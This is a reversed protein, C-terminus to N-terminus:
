PHCVPVEITTAQTPTQVRVRIVSRRQLATSSAGDQRCTVNLVASNGHQEAITVTLGEPVSEITPTIREGDRSTLRVTATNTIQGSVVKPLFLVSPAVEVPSIVASTIPIRSQTTQTDAIEIQLESVFSGPQDTRAIVEVQGIPQGAYPHDLQPLAAGAPVLQVQFRDPHKSSVQTIRRGPIGCDYVTITRKASEGVSLDGFIVAAPDTFADSTVCPINVEVSARPHHPDNTAFQVIVKQNMRPWAGVSIRVTFEIHDGAPIRAKELGRWRGDDLVEVGACSCSTRFQSLELLSDGQNSVRITGSVIAGFKQPGLDLTRTFGAVPPRRTFVHESQWWFAAGAAAVVVLGGLAVRRISVADM